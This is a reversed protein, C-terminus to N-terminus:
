ILLSRGTMEVPKKIELIDLITPAIDGLIGKKKLKSKKLSNNVLIFPVPNISHKTDIAGTKLDVMEEINGHDAVIIITGDKKLVQNVVKGVADDVIEMAKIGAELNGTHAIMDPNAFNVAIFDYKNNKIGNNIIKVIKYVSMEPKESYIKVDPSPVRIRKEGGVSNSYGGNFFYTMHAYKESETIYLQRLHSLIIPLTNKLDQTPFATFINGLDPGFDTMAIFKLNKLVKKRKFSGKNLKNFDEQVFPKALQRARDSRLNFFIVADNDAILSKPDIKKNKSSIINPQIFEDSEGRNYAHSIASIPDSDIFGKGLTLANYIKKTREWKKNRDMYFRGSITAIKENYRLKKLLRNILKISEYQPADRGDTFLHLYVKGKFKERMLKLLGYLHEPSSHPSQCGSFLGMLHMSSKYQKAHRIADIFAPNNFFSGNKISKTIKISDQVVIRGAGLNMHGAESNGDQGKPLGAKIGHAILKTNLYKKQLATIVPTKALSIANGKSAPAIGWGDLILLVVPKIKNKNKM